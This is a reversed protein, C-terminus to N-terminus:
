KDTYVILAEKPADAKTHRAPCDSEWHESMAERLFKRPGFCHKGCRNCRMAVPHEWDLREDQPIPNNRVLAELSDLRRLTTGTPRPVFM